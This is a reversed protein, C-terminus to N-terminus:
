KKSSGESGPNGTSGEAYIMMSPWTTDTHMDIDYQSDGTDKPLETVFRIAVEPCISECAHTGNAGTEHDWYPTNFCLDCKQSYGGLYNWQVRSPANPCVQICQMCGICKEPSIRRVNEQGEDIHCAQTPCVEVCKPDPCQHCQFITMDLPFHQFSDGVIQIRALNPNTVGYHTMACAMMCNQCGCCRMSDVVLYGGSVPFAVDLGQERGTQIWDLFGGGAVAVVGVGGAIKLFRRRSMSGNATAKGSPAEITNTKTKAM